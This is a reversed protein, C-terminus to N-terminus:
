VWRSGIVRRGRRWLVDAVVDVHHPWAALHGGFEGGGRRVVEEEGGDRRRWGRVRFRQRDRKLTLLDRM